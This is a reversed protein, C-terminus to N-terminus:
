PAYGALLPALAADIADYMAILERVADEAGDEAHMSGLAARRDIEMAMRLADALREVPDGDVGADCLRWDDGAEAEVQVRLLRDLAVVAARAADRALDATAETRYPRTM